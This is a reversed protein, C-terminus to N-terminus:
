FEQLSPASAPLKASSAAMGCGIENCCASVYNRVAIGKYEFDESGTYVVCPAKAVDAYDSTFKQLNKVFDGSFTAASKIEVPYLFRGKQEVLDVEVGNSTRYYWFETSSCANLAAKMRELIVFNEFLSGYLPDRELRNENKKSLGTGSM